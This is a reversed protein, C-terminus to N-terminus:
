RDDSYTGVDTETVTRNQSIKGSIGSGVNEKGELLKSIVSDFSDELTGRRVLRLYTENKVAILHRTTTSM